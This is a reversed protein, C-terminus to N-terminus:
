FGDPIVYEYSSTSSKDESDRTPVNAQRMDRYKENVARAESIWTKNQPHEPFKEVLKQYNKLSDIYYGEAEYTKALGHLVEADEEFYFSATEFHEMAEAHNNRDLEHRAKYINLVPDNPFNDLGMNIYKRFITRNDDRHLLNAILQYIKLNRRDEELAKDFLEQAEGINRQYFLMAGRVAMVEPHDRSINEATHFISFANEMDARMFHVFAMGAYGVPSQPFNSIIDRYVEIAEAYYRNHFYMDALNQYINLRNPTAEVAQRYYYAAKKINGESNYISALQVYALVSQSEAEAVKNLLSKAKKLEGKRMYTLGLWYMAQFNDTNYKLVNKFKEVAEDYNRRSYHITGIHFNATEDLDDYKLVEEFKELAESNNGLSKSRIGQENLEKIKQRENESVFQFPRLQKEPLIENIDVETEISVEEEKNVGEKKQEEKQKKLSKMVDVKLENLREHEPEAELGREIQELASQYNGANVHFEILNMLLDINISSNILIFFCICFFIIINKKNM